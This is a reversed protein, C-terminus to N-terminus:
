NNNFFEIKWEDIKKEKSSFNIGVVILTQRFSRYKEIYGIQRIQALAVNASQDLKFEMIYIYKPTHVFTDIRGRGTNM